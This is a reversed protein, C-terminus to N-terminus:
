EEVASRYIELQKDFCNKWSLNAAYLRAKEKMGQKEDMNAFKAVATALAQPSVEDLILGAQSKEIHEMAAGAGAAILPLGSSLSEVLSLGFTEWGSLAFGLDASAYYEAMEEKSHIFGKFHVHEYKEVAEAVLNEYPGTGALILTPALELSQSLIEYSKLLIHLGKEKSFRHPFFLILRDSNGAKLEHALKENRKDPNFLDKNVGLPSFHLNEVGNQEMRDMIVQSAVLVGDMRNYHKRAHRWAIREGINKFPTNELFRRVYTVPFDAHWFGFVKARLQNKKVIRNVLKPMIYPSGVEIVDPDHNKLIPALSKSRILYRYEWNGAVKPVKLHEIYANEEIQETYTRDDHMVFVYATDTRDKFYEIKELHYRRVGGGSPSWFNNCDLLKFM